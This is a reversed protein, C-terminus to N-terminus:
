LYVSLEIFNLIIWFLPLFFLVCPTQRSVYFSTLLGCPCCFRFTSVCVCRLWLVCFLHPVSAISAAGVWLKVEVWTRAYFKWYCIRDCNREELRSHVHGYVYWALASFWYFAAFDLPFLYQYTVQKSATALESCLFLRSTRDGKRM